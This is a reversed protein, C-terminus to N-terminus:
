LCLLYNVPLIGIIISMKNVKLRQITPPKCTTSVIAILKISGVGLNYEM